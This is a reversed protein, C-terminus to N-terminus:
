MNTRRGAALSFDVIVGGVDRERREGVLVGGLDEEERLGFRGVQIPVRGGGQGPLETAEGQQHKYVPASRQKPPKKAICEPNGGQVAVFVWKVALLLAHTHKQMNGPRAGCDLDGIFVVDSVPERLHYSPGM